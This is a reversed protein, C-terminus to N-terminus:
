WKAVMSAMMAAMSVSIIEGPTVQMFLQLQFPATKTLLKFREAAM